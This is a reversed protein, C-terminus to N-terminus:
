DYNNIEKTEQYNKLIFSFIFYFDETIQQTYKSYILLVSFTILQLPTPKIIVESQYSDFLFILYIM